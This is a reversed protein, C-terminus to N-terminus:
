GEDPPNWRTREPIQDLVDVKAKLMQEVVAAHDFNDEIILMMATRRNFVAYGIEEGNENSERLLVWGPESGDWLYEYSKLNTTM